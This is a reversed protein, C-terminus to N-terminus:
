IKSITAFDESMIIAYKDLFANAENVCAQLTAQSSNDTYIRKWRTILLSFGLQRFTYNGTLIKQAQKDNINM